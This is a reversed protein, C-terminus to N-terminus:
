SFSAASAVSGGWVEAPSFGEFPEARTNFAATSFAAGRGWGNFDGVGFGVWVETGGDDNPGILGSGLATFPSMSAM